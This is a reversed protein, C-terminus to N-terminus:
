KQVKLKFEVAKRLALTQAKREDLPLDKSNVGCKRIKFERL